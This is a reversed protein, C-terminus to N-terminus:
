CALNRRIIDLSEQKSNAPLLGMLLGTEFVLEAEDFTKNLFAHSVQQLGIGRTKKRRRPVRFHKSILNDKFKRPRGRKSKIRLGGLEKVMNQHHTDDSMGLDKVSDEEGSLPDSVLSTSKLSISSACERPIWNTTCTQLIECGEQGLGEQGLVSDASPGRPTLPNVASQTSMEAQSTSDIGQGSENIRPSPSLDEAQIISELGQGFEIARHGKPLAEEVKDVPSIPPLNADMNSRVLKEHVPSQLESGEKQFSRSASVPNRTGTNGKHPSKPDLLTQNGEECFAVDESCVSKDDCLQINDGGTEVIRIRWM